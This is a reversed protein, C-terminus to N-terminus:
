NNILNSLIHLSAQNSLNVQSILSVLNYRIPRNAQHRFPALSHRIVPKVQLLVM